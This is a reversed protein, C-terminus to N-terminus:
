ASSCWRVRRFLEAVDVRDQWLRDQVFRVEGDLTSFAPRVEVVGQQRGAVARQAREQVFGRFPAIETGACITILTTALSKPPHFAVNSPRVAVCMRMGPLAQALYSSATGLYRGRGSWASASVVAVM